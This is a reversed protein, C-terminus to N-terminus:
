PYHRSSNSVHGLSRLWWPQIWQFKNLEEVLAESGFSSWPASVVFLGLCYTVLRVISFFDFNGFWLSDHFDHLSKFSWDKVTMCNLDLYAWAKHRSYWTVLYIKKPCTKTWLQLDGVKKTFCMEVGLYKNGHINQWSLGILM